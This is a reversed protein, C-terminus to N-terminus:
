KFAQGTVFPLIAAHGCFHTVLNLVLANITMHWSFLGIDNDRFRRALYYMRLHSVVPDFDVWANPRRLGRPRCGAIISGSGFLQLVVFVTM